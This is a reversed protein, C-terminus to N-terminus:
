CATTDRSMEKSCNTSTTIRDPATNRNLAQSTTRNATLPGLSSTGGSTPSDTSFASCRKASSCICASISGSRSMSSVM